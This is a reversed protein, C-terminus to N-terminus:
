SNLSETKYLKKYIKSNKMLEKHKGSEVIRGKDVVYIIDADQITSLRHAVIIVTHDKVLDDIARKIFEQSNNDLASTAEDFLIVKADKSLTRAIALRQKQGGSLNVGGEGLVTNYKKPLSEIYDELYAMKVYKKINALKMNKDILKFNDLITRNFIFPEQRIISIHHRLEEETLDKIDVGDLLIQGETPDFIRTLLNFLTSKGQGSAGVIAIKKGPEISLNFDKLTAEENPYNFTVDKFEIYGKPHRIVKNGFSVDAYLRNELLENIRELSVKVQQFTKSFSNVSDIIWTFRYIYYTMAIFFTLSIEGIYLQYICTLFCGVELTTRFIRSVIDFRRQINTENIMAKYIDKNIDAVDETLHKKIGLTKLERIGRISEDVLSVFRDHEKKSKKSAKNFLTNYKKVIFSFVLIFILIELAIIKSNLLIYISIVITGLFYTIMDLLTGIVSSLSVTDQTIRSIIEGSSKEEYAVAPLNLAKIYTYYGLKSTLRNEIKRLLSTVYSQLFGNVFIGLFLYVLLFTVAAELKSNSIAEVAAGNLYGGLTDSLSIILLMIFAFIVKIRDEKLFNLLPKFEKKTTKQQKQKEM